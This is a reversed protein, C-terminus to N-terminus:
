VNARESCDIEDEEDNVICSEEFDDDLSGKVQSDIMEKKTM